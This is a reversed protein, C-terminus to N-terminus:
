AAEWGEIKEFWCSLLWAVAAEKHEHKPEFSRQITALHRLAVEADIGENPFFQVDAPLGKFFWASQIRNWETGNCRRFEEPISEWAPLLRDMHGGFAMDLGSVEQPVPCEGDEPGGLEVDPPM